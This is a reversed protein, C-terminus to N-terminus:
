CRLLSNFRSGIVRRLRRDTQRDLRDDSQKLLLLLLLSLSMLVLRVVDLAATSFYVIKILKQTKTGKSTGWRDHSNRSAEQKAM